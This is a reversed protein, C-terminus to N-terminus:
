SFIYEHFFHLHLQLRLTHNLIEDILQIHICLLIFIIGIFLLNLIFSNFNFIHMTHSANLYVFCEYNQACISSLYNLHSHIIVNKFISFCNSLVIHKWFVWFLFVIVQIKVMRMPPLCSLFKLLMFSTESLDFLM